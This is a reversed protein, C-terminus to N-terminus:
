AGSPKEISVQMTESMGIISSSSATCCSGNYVGKNGGSEFRGLGGLSCSTAKLEDRLPSANVANTIEQASYNTRECYQQRQATASFPMLLAFLVITVTRSLQGQNRKQLVVNRCGYSVSCRPAWQGGVLARM